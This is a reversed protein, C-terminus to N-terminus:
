TPRQWPRAAARYHPEAGPLQQPTAGREQTQEGREPERHVPSGTRQQERANRISRKVQTM